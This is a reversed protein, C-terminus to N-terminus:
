GEFARPTQNQTSASVKGKVALDTLFAEIKREGEALNERCRMQHFRIFRKIWDVHGRETHLSYHHLRMAQRGQDLIGPKQAQTNM